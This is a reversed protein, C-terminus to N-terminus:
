LMCLSRSNHEDIVDWVVCFFLQANKDFDIMLKNNTTPLQVMANM